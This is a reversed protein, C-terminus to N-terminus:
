EGLGEDANLVERGSVALVRGAGSGVLREAVVLGWEVLLELDKTVEGLASTEGALEQGDANALVGVGLLGLGGVVGESMSEVRAGTFGALAGLVGVRGHGG